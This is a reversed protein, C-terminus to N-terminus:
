QEYDNCIGDTKNMLLCCIKEELDREARAAGSVTDPLNTM